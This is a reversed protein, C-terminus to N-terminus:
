PHAGIPPPRHQSRVAVFAGRDAARACMEISAASLETIPAGSTPARMDFRLTFM